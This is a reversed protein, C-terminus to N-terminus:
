GLAAKVAQEGAEAADALAEAATLAGNSAGAPIVMASGDITIPPRAPDPRFMAAHADWVLKGGCHSWLHVVPSWGGSM